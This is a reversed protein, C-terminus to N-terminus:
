VGSLLVRFLQIKGQEISYTYIRFTCIVIIEVILACHYCYMGGSEANFSEENQKYLTRIMRNESYHAM